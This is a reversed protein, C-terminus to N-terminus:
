IELDMQSIVAACRKCLGNEDAELSHMWCRPCKEGRAEAVGITLESLNAGNGVTAGEEPAETMKESKEENFTFGMTGEAAIKAKLEPNKVVTYRATQSNKWSPAWRALDLIRDMTDATIPEATFKRVSRREYMAKLVENM